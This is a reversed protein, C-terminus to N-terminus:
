SLINLGLKEVYNRLILYKGVLLNDCNIKYKMM